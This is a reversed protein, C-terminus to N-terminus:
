TIFNCHSKLRLIFNFDPFHYGDLSLLLVVPFLSDQVLFTFRAWFATIESPLFPRTTSTFLPIASRAWPGLRYHESRILEVIHVQLSNMKNSSKADCGALNEHLFAIHGQRHV